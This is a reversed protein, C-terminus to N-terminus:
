KSAKYLLNLRLVKPVDTDERLYEINVYDGISVDSLRIDTVGKKLITNPLINFTRRIGGDITITSSDTDVAAVKGEFVRSDPNGLDCRGDATMGCLLAVAVLVIALSKM